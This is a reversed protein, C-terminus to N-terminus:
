MNDTTTPVNICAIITFTVLNTTSNESINKRLRCGANYSVFDSDVVSRHEYVWYRKYSVIKYGHM